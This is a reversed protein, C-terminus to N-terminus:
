GTAETPRPESLLTTVEPYMHEVCIYLTWWHDSQNVEMDQPSAVCRMYREGPQIGRHCRPYNDCQKPTRATHYTQWTAM